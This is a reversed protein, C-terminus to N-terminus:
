ALVGATALKAHWHKVLIREKGQENVTIAKYCVISKAIETPFVFLMSM